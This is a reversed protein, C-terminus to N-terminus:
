GDTLPVDTLDYGADNRIRLRKGDATEEVWPEVTVPPRGRAGSLADDVTGSEDLKMLNLRTPFMIHWEKRNAIADQPRVWLSDVSERGCHQGSHGIPARALFFHTDYRRPMHKPTVWHAFHVIEDCALRLQEDRLMAVLSTEGKEIRERYGELQALRMESVLGETTNDRALLVGAEEFGERIAAAAAARLDGKWGAIGDAFDILAPDFDDPAAKGGPFVLAGAAFEIEHHRRVMFVELGADSDRLLLITAAPVPERTLVRDNSM